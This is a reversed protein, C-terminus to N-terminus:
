TCAATPDLYQLIRQALDDAVAHSGVAKELTALEV